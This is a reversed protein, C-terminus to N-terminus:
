RFILNLQGNVLLDLLFTDNHSKKVISLYLLHALRKSYLLGVQLQVSVLCENAQSLKSFANLQRIKLIMM